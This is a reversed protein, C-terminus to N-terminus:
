IMVVNKQLYRRWQACLLRFKLQWASDHITGPPVSSRELWRGLKKGKANLEDSHSCDHVYYNQTRLSLTWKEQSETADTVYATVTVSRRRNSADAQKWRFTKYLFNDVQFEPTALLMLVERYMSREGIFVLYKQNRAHVWRGLSRHCLSLDKGESYIIFVYAHDYADSM